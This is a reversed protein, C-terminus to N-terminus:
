CYDFTIVDTLTNHKLFQKNKDLLYNDNCFVFVIEGSKKNECNIVKEVWDKTNKLLIKNTNIFQLDIM